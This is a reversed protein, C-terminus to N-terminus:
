KLIAAAAASVDIGCAKGLDTMTDIYQVEVSKEACMSQLEKVINNDADKAIYVVKVDESLVARKVQKSGVVKKETKLKSLM